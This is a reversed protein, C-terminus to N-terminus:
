DLPKPGGDSNALCKPISKSEACSLGIGVNANFGFDGRAEEKPILDRRLRGVSVIANVMKYVIHRYTSEARFSIYISYEYEM